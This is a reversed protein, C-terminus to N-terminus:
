LSKLKPLRIFTYLVGSMMGINGIGILEGLILNEKGGRSNYLALSLFSFCWFFTLSVVLLFHTQRLPSVNVDRLMMTYFAFLCLCVIVTSEVILFHAGWGDLPFLREFAAATLMGAGGLMWGIQRPRLQRVSYNFYLCYGWFELPSFLRYLLLNNRYVYALVIATLEVAAQAVVVVIFIRTSVDSYRWRILVVIAV